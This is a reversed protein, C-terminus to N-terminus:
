AWASLATIPTPPELNGAEGSDAVVPRRDGFFSLCWWAVQLGRWVSLLRVLQIRQLHRYRRLAGNVVFVEAVHDGTGCAPLPRSEPQRHVIWMAPLAPSCHCAAANTLYGDALRDSSDCAAVAAQCSATYQATTLAAATGATGGIESDGACASTSSLPACPVHAGRSMIACRAQVRKGFALRSQNREKGSTM